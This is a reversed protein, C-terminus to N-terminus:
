GVSQWWLDRIANAGWLNPEVVGCYYLDRNVPQPNSQAPNGAKLGHGLFHAHIDSLLANHSAAVQRITENFQQIWALAQPWSAIQLAATDGTGDSPDYITGLLIPADKGALARLEKLVAPAQTQFAQHAARAAAESGFAQLLDNGGMTLTIITPRVGSKRLQPIQGHLVTASTAGDTALPVFRSGPFRTELDRGIWAPFLADQNSYLLSAAGLGPGGAYDDISISDGLSVYCTTEPSFPNSTTMPDTKSM